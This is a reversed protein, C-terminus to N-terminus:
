YYKNSEEEELQELYRMDMEYKLSQEYEIESIWEGTLKNKYYGDNGVSIIVDHHHYVKVENTSGVEYTKGQQGITLRM